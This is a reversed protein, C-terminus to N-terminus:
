LQFIPGSVLNGAQLIQFVLDFQVGFGNDGSGSSFIERVVIEGLYGDECPGRGMVFLNYNLVKSIILSADNVCSVPGVIHSAESVCVHPHCHDSGGVYTLHDFLLVLLLLFLGLEVFLYLVDAIVHADGDSFLHLEDSLHGLLPHAFIGTLSAHECIILDFESVGTNGGGECGFM